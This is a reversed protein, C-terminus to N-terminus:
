IYHTIIPCIIFWIVINLSIMMKNDSMIYVKQTHTKPYHISKNAYM